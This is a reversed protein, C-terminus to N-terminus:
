NVIRADIELQGLAKAVSIRHHGDRVYYEDGVQILEVAPLIVGMERAVAINVWRELNHKKLPHFDKDFDKSRGETGIIKDLSVIVTGSKGNTHQPQHSLNQLKISKGTLKARIQNRIGKGYAQNFMKIAIRRTQAQAENKSGYHQLTIIQLNTSM